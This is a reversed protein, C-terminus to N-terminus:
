KVVNREIKTQRASQCFLVVTIKQLLAKGSHLSRLFYILLLDICANLIPDLLNLILDGSLCDRFIIRWNANINITHEVEHMYAVIISDPLRVVEAVEEDDAHAGICANLTDFSRSDHVLVLPMFDKCMALECRFNNLLDIILDGEVGHVQIPATKIRVTIIGHYEGVARIAQRLDLCYVSM